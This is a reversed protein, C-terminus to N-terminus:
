LSRDPELQKWIASAFDYCYDMFNKFTLPRTKPSQEETPYLANVCDDDNCNNNIDQFVEAQGGDRDVDEDDDDYM